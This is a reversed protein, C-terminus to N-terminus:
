CDSASAKMLLVDMELLVLGRRADTWKEVTQAYGKKPQLRHPSREWIARCVFEAFAVPLWGSDPLRWLDSDFDL